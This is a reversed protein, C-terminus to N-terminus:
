DDHAVNLCWGCSWLIISKVGGSGAHLVKDDKAEFKRGGFESHSFSGFKTKVFQPRWSTLHEFHPGSSRPLFNSFRAARDRHGLNEVQVLTLKLVNETQYVQGWDFINWPGTRATGFEIHSPLNRLDEDRCCWPLSQLPRYHHRSLVAAGVSVCCFYICHKLLCWVVGTQIDSSTPKKSTRMALAPVGGTLLAGFDVGSQFSMLILLPSIFTCYFIMSTSCPEKVGSTDVQM